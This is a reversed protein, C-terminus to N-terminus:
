IILHVHIAEKPQQWSWLVNVRPQRTAIRNERDCNSPTLKVRSEPSKLVSKVFISSDTYLSDFGNETYDAMHAGVTGWVKGIYHVCVQEVTFSFVFAFSSKTKSTKTTM